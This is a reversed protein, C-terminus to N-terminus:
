GEPYFMLNITIRKSMEAIVCVCAALVCWVHFLCSMNPSLKPGPSCGWVNLIVDVFMPPPINELRAAAETGVVCDSGGGVGIISFLSVLLFFFFIFFSLSVFNIGACLNVAAICCCSSRFVFMVSYWSADPLNSAVVVAFFICRCIRSLGRVLACLRRRGPM